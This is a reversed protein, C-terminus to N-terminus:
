VLPESFSPETGACRPVNINIKCQNAVAQLTLHNRWHIDRVSSAARLKAAIALLSVTGDEAVCASRWSEPVEDASVAGVYSDCNELLDSRFDSVHM